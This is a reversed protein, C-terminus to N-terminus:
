QLRLLRQQSWIKRHRYHQPQPRLDRHQRPRPPLKMAQTALKSLNPTIDKPAGDLFPIVEHGLDDATILLVNLPKDANQEPTDAFCGFPLILLILFKM